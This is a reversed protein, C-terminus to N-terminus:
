GSRTQGTTGFLQKYDVGHFTEWIQKAPFIQRKETCHEAKEPQRLLGVQRLTLGRFVTEQYRFSSLISPDTNFEYVLKGAFSVFIVCITDIASYPIFREGGTKSVRDNFDSDEEVGGGGAGRNAICEAAPLLNAVTLAVIIVISISKAM